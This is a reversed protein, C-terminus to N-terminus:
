TATAQPPATSRGVGYWDLKRTMWMAGAITLFSSISGVLLAYDEMRLLIYILTYNVSFVGLAKLMAARSAFVSGAYLSLALVTCTAAIAFGPTFGAIESVSLLLMYFVIQALGVLVYQAPHARIGSTTEFLFYTLFVLGIFLPAYKLAREVSQYPNGPDLLKLGPAANIITAFGLNQGVGPAGRALYSIHWRAEFGDRTVSRTDPLASGEFQPSPWDGRMLINTDKAFAALSVHEAGTVQLTAAATFPGSAAEALWPAPGGILSRMGPKDGYLREADGEIPALEM